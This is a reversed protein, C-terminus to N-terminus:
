SIKILKEIARDLTDTNKAFCLRLIKQDLKNQYFESVPITAVQHTKILRKAFDFDNEQSIQDYKVLQFYTGECPLLEFNSNQLQTRFYDRKALYMASVEEFDVVDLYAAIVHQALSNVTFVTFQHVKKIEDMLNKPAVLYGVKWGTVHLSKGFSSAVVVRNQLKPRQHFSTHSQLFSIFEYVEDALIIIEPFKELLTELAQFDKEIWIRGSPNHPNNIVIMKTKHTIASEIKDFDPTFDNQMNVHVPVGGAMLVSPEYSDYCPDLLVVEDGRHILANITTYIGQTAGATILMEDVINPERQYFKHITNSIKELLIPLGAMPLYQHVSTLAKRSAIDLLKKDEPFNPFGQSLNIAKYENAMATMVSFISTASNPLKTM